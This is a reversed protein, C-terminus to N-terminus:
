SSLLGKQGPQFDIDNDTIAIGQRTLKMAEEDIGYPVLQHLDYMNLHSNFLIDDYELSPNIPLNHDVIYRSQTPGMTIFNYLVFSPPTVIPLPQIQDKQEKFTYLISNGHKIYHSNNM